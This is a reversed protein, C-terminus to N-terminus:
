EKLEQLCAKGAALQIKSGPLLDKITLKVSPSLLPNQNLDYPILDSAPMLM